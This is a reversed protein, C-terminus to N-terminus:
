IAISAQRQESLVTAFDELGLTGVVNMSEDFIEFLNNHEARISYLVIAGDSGGGESHPNPDAASATYTGTPRVEKLAGDPEYLRHEGQLVLTNTQALHSHIFIKKNPEYKLIADVIKKDSDVNIMAFVFHEFDGLQHWQMNKSNYFYSVDQRGNLFGM